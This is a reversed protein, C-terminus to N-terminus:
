PSAEVKQSWSLSVAVGLLQSLVVYTKVAPLDDIQVQGDHIGVFVEDVDIMLKKDALIEKVEERVEKSDIHGIRLTYRIAGKQSSDSNGYDGIEDLSAEQGSGDVEDGPEYEGDYHEEAGVNVMTNSEDVSEEAIEEYDDSNEHGSPEDHEAPEAYEEGPEEGVLESSLDQPEEFLGSDSEVQEGVAAMAGEIDATREGLNPVDGTVFSQNFSSADLGEATEPEESVGETQWNEPDQLMRDAEGSQANGDESLDDLLQDSLDHSGEVQGAFSLEDFDSPMEPPASPDSVDGKSSEVSGDLDIMLSAGCGPCTILGFDQDGLDTNCSPCSSM